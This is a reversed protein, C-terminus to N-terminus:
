NLFHRMGRSSAHLADAEPFPWIWPEFEGQPPPPEYIVEVDPLNPLSDSAINAGCLVLRRLAQGDVTAQILRAIDGPSVDGTGDTFILRLTAVKNRVHSAINTIGAFIDDARLYFTLTELFPLRRTAFAFWVDAHVTMDRLERLLSMGAIPLALALESLRQDVAVAVGDLRVVLGVQGPLPSPTGTECHIHSWNVDLSAPRGVALLVRLLAGAAPHDLNSSLCISTAHPFSDIVRYVNESNLLRLRLAQPGQYARQATCQQGVLTLSVLAPFLAVIQRLIVDDVDGAYCLSTVSRLSIYDHELTYVRGLSLSRLRTADPFARSKLSSHNHAGTVHLRVCELLPAPTVLLRAFPTGEVHPLFLSLSTVRRMHSMFVDAVKGYANGWNDDESCFCQYEIALPLDLSRSLLAAILEPPPSLEEGGFGRQLLCVRTWLLPFGLLSSRWVRCVLAARYLDGPTLRSAIDQLLETPLRSRLLVQPGRQSALASNRPASDHVHDIQDSSRADRDPGWSHLLVGHIAADETGEAKGRLRPEGTM